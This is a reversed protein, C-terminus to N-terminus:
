STFRVIAFVAVALVALFLLGGVVASIVFARNFWRDFQEDTGSLRANMPQRTMREWGERVDGSIYRKSWVYTTNCTPCAWGRGSYVSRDPFQCRHEATM